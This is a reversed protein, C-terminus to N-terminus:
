HETNGAEAAAASKESEREKCDRQEDDRIQAAKDGASKRRNKRGAYYPAFADQFTLDPM